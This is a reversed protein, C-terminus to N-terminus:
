DSFGLITVKNESKDMAIMGTSLGQIEGGFLGLIADKEEFSLETIINIAQKLEQEHLHRWVPNELMKRLLSSLCTSVGYM